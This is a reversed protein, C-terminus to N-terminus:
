LKSNGSSQDNIDGQEGLASLVIVRVRQPGKIPLIGDLHLQSDKDITGTMEVATMPEQM